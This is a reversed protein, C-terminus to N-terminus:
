NHSVSGEPSRVRWYGGDAAIGCARLCEDAPVAGTGRQRIENCPYFASAGDPTSAQVPLPRSAASFFASTTTSAVLVGAVPGLRSIVPGAV